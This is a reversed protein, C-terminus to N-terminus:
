PSGLNNRWLTYFKKWKLSSSFIRFDNFLPLIQGGLTKNVELIQWLEKREGDREEKEGRIKGRKTEKRRMKMEGGEGEKEKEKKEKERGWERRNGSQDKTENM